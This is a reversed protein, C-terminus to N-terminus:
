KMQATSIMKRHIEIATIITDTDISQGKLSLSTNMSWKRQTKASCAM